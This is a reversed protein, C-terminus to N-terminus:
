PSKTTDAHPPILWELSCAECQAIFQELSKAWVHKVRQSGVQVLEPKWDRSYLTRALDRRTSRKGDKKDVICVISAIHALEWLNRYDRSTKYEAFPVIM